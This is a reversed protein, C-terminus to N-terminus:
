HVRDSGQPDPTPGARLEMFVLQVGVRLYEVLEAYAAEEIEDDEDPDFAARSLETFDRVIEQADAGLARPDFGPRVSLGFLFGACWAALAAVRQDLPRGDDPLLPAFGMSDDQLAVLAEDRCRQLEAPVPGVSRIGPDVLKMLDIDEPRLVCLAGCLSGHVEAGDAAAAVRQVVAELGAFDLTKVM